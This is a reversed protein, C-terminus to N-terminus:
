EFSKRLTETLYSNFSIVHTDYSNECYEEFTKHVHGFYHILSVFIILDDSNSGTFSSWYIPKKANLVKSITAYLNFQHENIKFWEEGIIRQTSFDHNEIDCLPSEVTNERYSKVLRGVFNSFIDCIRVGVAHQSDLEVVERYLGKNVYPVMGSGKDPYFNVSSTCVNMEDLLKLAGDLQINYNWAIDTIKKFKVRKLISISEKMMFNELSKREIGEIHQQVVEMLEIIKRSIESYYKPEFFSNLVRSDNYIALFKSLSYIFSNNKLDKPISNKVVSSRLLLEMKNFVNLQFDLNNEFIFDFYLQYIEVTNKHFSAIGNKFQKKKSILEGKVEVENSLGLIKKTIEEFIHYRNEIDSLLSTNILIFTSVYSDLTNERLINLVGDKNTIKRDSFSEDYYLNWM